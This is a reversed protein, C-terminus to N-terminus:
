TFDISTICGPDNDLLSVVFRVLLSTLFYIRTLLCHLGFSVFFHASTRGLGSQDTSLQRGRLIFEM